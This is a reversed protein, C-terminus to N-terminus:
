WKGPWMGHEYQGYQFHFLITHFYLRGQPYTPNEVVKYVTIVNEVLYSLLLDM